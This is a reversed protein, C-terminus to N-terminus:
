LRATTVIPLNYGIDSSMWAAFPGLMSFALAKTGSAALVLTSLAAIFRRRM